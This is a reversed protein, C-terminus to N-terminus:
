DRHYPGGAVLTTARYIQEALMVRALAHPWTQAGFALREHAAELVAPALGDAGGIVFALRTAGRDRKDVIWEAFRRSTFTAGREDCAVLRDGGDIAALIAGAEADRGPKRSHIEILEVPHLGHSRGNADARDVYDRSLLAEPSRGLRGVALIAIRV